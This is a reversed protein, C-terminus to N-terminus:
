LWRLATLHRGFYDLLAADTNAKGALTHAHALRAIVVLRLVAALICYNGVPQCM